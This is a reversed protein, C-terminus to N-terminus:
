AFEYVKCQMINKIADREIWITSLYSADSVFRLKLLMAHYHPDEPLNRSERVCFLLPTFWFCNEFSNQYLKIVKTSLIRPVSTDLTKFKSVFIFTIEKSPHNCSSKQCM